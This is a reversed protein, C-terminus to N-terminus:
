TQRPKSPRIGIVAGPLEPIGHEGALDQMESFVEKLMSVTGPQERREPDAALARLEELSEIFVIGTPRDQWFRGQAAVQHADGLHGTLDGAAPDGRHGRLHRLDHGLGTNM